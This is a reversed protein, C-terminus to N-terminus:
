AFPNAIELWQAEADSTGAYLVVKGDAFVLGSSFVVDVLDPRKSVGPAFADRSAIIKFDRFTRSRPDFLFASAYYHRNSDSDDNEFHAVHSLVGIEGSPLRHTENAGGWDLPHFMGELLPAQEILDISLEDLSPAETYGITGRGGVAGQPRTFVGIRGEPLEALRIDKMGKPGCFFPRLQFIDSGRYFATRWSLRGAEEFIEVGGFVLEKGVFTFFPDQLQFSPADAILHWVEERAEFFRAQAHESDRKEVRGAIVTRGGATFPATVNYVDFGDVGAFVIRGTRAPSSGAEHKYKQFRESARIPTTDVMEQYEM